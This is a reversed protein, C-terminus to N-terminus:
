PHHLVREDCQYRCAPCANGPRCHHLRFAPQLHPKHRDGSVSGASKVPTNGYTQTFHTVTDVSTADVAPSPTFVGLYVSAGTDYLDMTQLNLPIHLTDASEGSRNSSLTDLSANGCAAGTVVYHTNNLTVNNALVNTVGEVSVAVDQVTVYIGQAQYATVIAAFSQVSASSTIVVGDFVFTVGNNLIAERHTTGRWYPFPPTIRRRMTPLRIRTNRRSGPTTFSKNPIVLATGIKLPLIDENQTFGLIQTATPTPWGTAPIRAALDTVSEQAQWSLYAPMPVPDTGFIDVALESAAAAMFRSASLGYTSALAQLSQASTKAPQVPLLQSAAGAYLQSATAFKWLM